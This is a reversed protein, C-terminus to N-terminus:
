RDISHNLAQKTALDKLEAGTLPALEQIAFENILKATKIKQGKHNTSNVFIQCKREEMMSLIMRPVHWGEDNNFPVYKKISGVASNGVTFIEGEWEKKQPNMCNVVVRVLATAERRLRTHMQIKTEVLPTSETKLALEEEVVPADSMAANVKERLKVLGITPHHKIGLSAARQKLVTLEDQAPVTTEATQDTINSMIKEKM